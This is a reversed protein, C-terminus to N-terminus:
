FHGEYYYFNDTIKETYYTNDGDKEKYLYGIGNFVLEKEDIFWLGNVENNTSYYFGYYGTNSGIGVGGCYFDIYGDEIKPKIEKIGNIKFTQNYSDNKIDKLIIDENKKVLKFIEGKELNDKLLCGSCLFTLFIVIVVQIVKKM